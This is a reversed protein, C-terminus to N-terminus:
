KIVSLKYSSLFSKLFGISCDVSERIHRVNSMGDYIKPSGSKERALSRVHIVPMLHYTALHMLGNDVGLYFDCGLFHAMFASSFGPCILEANSDRLHEPLGNIYGFLKVKYGLKNLVDVLKTESDPNIYKTQKDWNGNFCCGITKNNLHRWVHKAKMINDEGYYMSGWSKPWDIFWSCEPGFASVFRINSMESSYEGISLNKSLNFLNFLEVAKRYYESKIYLSIEENRTRSLNLFANYYALIDGVGGCTIHYRKYSNFEYQGNDLFIPPINNSRVEPAKIEPKAPVEPKIPAKPKIQKSLENRFESHKTRTSRCFPDLASM